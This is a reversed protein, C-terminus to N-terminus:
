PSDDRVMKSESFASSTGIVGSTPGTPLLPDTTTVGACVVFYVIVAVFTAPDSLQETETCTTGPCPGRIMRNEADGKFIRDPPTDVSTQCTSFAFWILM